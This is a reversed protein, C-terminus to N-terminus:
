KEPTMLSRIVSQAVDSAPISYTGAQLANQISAVKDLRVDPGDAAQAVQNAALSLQSSDQAANVVSVKTSSEALNTSPSSKAIQHLPDIENRIDNRVNMKERRSLEDDVTSTVITM